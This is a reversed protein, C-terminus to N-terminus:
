VKLEILLEFLLKYLAKTAALGLTFGALRGLWPNDIQMGVEV